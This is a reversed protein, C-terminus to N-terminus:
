NEAYCFPHPETWHTPCLQMAGSVGRNLAGTAPCPKLSDAHVNIQNAVRVEVMFVDFRITIARIVKGLADKAVPFRCHPWFVYDNMKSVYQNAVLALANSLKSLQRPAFDQNTTVMISALAVIPPHSVAEIEGTIAHFKAIAPQAMLWNCRQNFTTSHKVNMSVKVVNPVTKMGVRVVVGVDVSFKPELPLTEKGDFVGIIKGNLEALKHM